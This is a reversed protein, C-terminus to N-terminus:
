IEINYLHNQNYSVLKLSLLHVQFPRRFMLRISSYLLGDCSSPFNTTTSLHPTLHGLVLVTDIKGLPNLILWIVVKLYFLRM